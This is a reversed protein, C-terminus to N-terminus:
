SKPYMVLGLQASGRMEAMQANSIKLTAVSTSVIDRYEDFHRVADLLERFDDSLPGVTPAIKDSNM